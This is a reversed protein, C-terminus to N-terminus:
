VFLKPIDDLYMVAILTFGKFHGYRNDTEWAEGLNINYTRPM